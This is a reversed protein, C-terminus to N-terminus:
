KNNNLVLARKIHGRNGEPSRMMIEEPTLNEAKQGIGLRSLWTQNKTHERLSIALSGAGEFHSMIQSRHQSGDVQTFRVTAVSGGACDAGENFYETWGARNSTYRRFPTAGGGRGM